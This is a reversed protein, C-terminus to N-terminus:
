SYGLLGVVVGFELAVRNVGLTGDRVAKLAGQMSEESWQRLTAPRNLLKFVRGTMNEVGKEKQKVCSKMKSKTRPM